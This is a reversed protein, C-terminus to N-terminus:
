LLFHYFGGTNVNLEAAPPSAYENARGPKSFGRGNKYVFPGSALLSGPRKRQENMM